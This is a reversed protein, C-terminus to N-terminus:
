EASVQWLALILILTLILIQILILALLFLEYESYCVWIEGDAGVEQKQIRSRWLTRNQALGDAELVSLHL